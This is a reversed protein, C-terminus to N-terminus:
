VNTDNRKIYQALDMWYLLFENLNQTGYELYRRGVPEMEWEMDRDNWRFFAITFCTNSEQWKVLEYASPNPIGSTISRLPRVEFDQFKINM